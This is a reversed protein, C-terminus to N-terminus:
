AGVNLVVWLFGIVLGVIGWCGLFGVYDIPRWKNFEWTSGPFLKRHDFRHPKEYSLTVEREDEEPTPAVPTKLKAFFGDIRHRDAESLKRGPLLYSFGILM